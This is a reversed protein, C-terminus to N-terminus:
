STTGSIAIDGETVTGGHEFPRAPLNVNFTDSGVGSPPGANDCVDIFFQFYENTDLRGDGGFQVCTASTRTLSTV